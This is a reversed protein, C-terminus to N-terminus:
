EPVWRGRRNGSGERSDDSGDPEAGGGTPRTRRYRLGAEKMLRRCSPLSYEVDHAEALYQQVLAPTWTEADYGAHTPPERVTREFARRREAPLKRPRGSRPADLAAREPSEADFRDLWSYITRREVDHWEALETQTVGHKYAIAALLRQTATKGEANELADHLEEVTTDDLHAM